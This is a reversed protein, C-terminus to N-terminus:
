LRLALWFADLKGAQPMKTKFKEVPRGEPCYTILRAYALSINIFMYQLKLLNGGTLGILLLM